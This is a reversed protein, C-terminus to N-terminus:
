CLFLYTLVVPAQPVLSLPHGRIRWRGTFRVQTIGAYPFPSFVKNLNKATEGFSDKPSKFPKKM